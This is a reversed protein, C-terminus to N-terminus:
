GGPFPGTGGISELRREGAAIARLVPSNSQPDWIHAPALALGGDVCLNQGTVFRADESALYRAAAAIDDARGAQRLPQAAHAEARIADALAASGNRDHGRSRGFIPTAIFGPSIANVRIGDAALTAAAIRSLHILGAKAVSYATGGWGPQLGCISAINVISGGGAARMHPVAATMMRRPAGLLLAMSSDWEESDIADILKPSGPGGANNVLVNIRGGAEAACAFLAAVDSDSRIDCTLHTVASRADAPPAIDANFVRLGDAALAACIAAGIGSSGGTVVAVRAGAGTM